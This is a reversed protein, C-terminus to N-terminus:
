CSRERAVRAEVRRLRARSQSHGHRRPWGFWFGVLRAMQVARLGPPITAVAGPRALTGLRSDCAGAAHGDSTRCRAAVLATGERSADAPGVVRSSRAGTRHSWGLDM